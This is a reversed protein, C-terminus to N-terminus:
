AHAMVAEALDWALKALIGGVLFWAIHLPIQTGLSQWNAQGEGSAQHM